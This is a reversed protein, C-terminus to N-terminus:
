FLHRRSLCEAPQLGLRSEGAGLSFFVKSFHAGLPQRVALAVTLSELPVFSSFTLKSFFRSEIGFAFVLGSRHSFHAPDDSVLFTVVYGTRSM